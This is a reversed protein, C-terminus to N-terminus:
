HQILESIGAIADAPHVHGVLVQVALCEPFLGCKEDFVLLSECIALVQSCDVVAADTPVAKIGLLGGYRGHEAVQDTVSVKRQNRAALPGTAM